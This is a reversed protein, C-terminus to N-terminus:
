NWNLQCAKTEIKPCEMLIYIQKHDLESNFNISSKLRHLVKESDEVRKLEDKWVDLIDQPTIGDRDPYHLAEASANM